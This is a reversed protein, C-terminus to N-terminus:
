LEVGLCKSVAVYTVFNIHLSTFVIIIHLLSLMCLLNHLIVGHSYALPTALPYVFNMFFVDM